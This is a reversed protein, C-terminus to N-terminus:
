DEKMFEYVLHFLKRTFSNPIFGTEVDGGATTDKFWLELEGDSLKFFDISKIIENLEELSHKNSPDNDCSIDPEGDCM